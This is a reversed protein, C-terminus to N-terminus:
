PLYRLSFTTYEEGSPLSTRHSPKAAANTDPHQPSSHSSTASAAAAAAAAPKIVSSLQVLECYKCSFYVGRGRRHLQRDTLCVIIAFIEPSYRSTTSRFVANCIVIIGTCAYRTHRVQIPQIM